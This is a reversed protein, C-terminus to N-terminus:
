EDPGDMHYGSEDFSELIRAQEAIVFEYIVKAKGFDISKADIGQNPKVFLLCSRLEEPSFSFDCIAGVKKKLRADLNNCAGCIHTTNFRGYDGFGFIDGHDHHAHIGAKFGVEGYVVANRGIRKGWILIERKSRDCVPCKWDAPLARWIVACHMGDYAAFEEDTPARAVKQKRHGVSVM